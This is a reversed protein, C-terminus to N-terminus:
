ADKKVLKQMGYYEIAKQKLPNTSWEEWKNTYPSYGCKLPKSYMDEPKELYARCDTCVYRFECDKCVDIQDKTVNWYKKFDIHNLAKELTTDNINGFSQPMSPCNKINGNIDISIKRNLCSNHKLSETYNKINIAFMSSSIQGCHTHASIKDKLLIIFNQKDNLEIFSNELSNYNIISNIRKYDQLLLKYEDIINNENIFPFIFDVSTIFMENIDIFEIINRIVEIEIKHYFRIQINKCNLSEIQKLVDEIKYRSNASVDIIVNNIISPEFWDDSLNPFLDPTDTLFALENEILFDFYEDIIEDFENNFKEKIAKIKLKSNMLVNYLDNPILKIGGRQLDCIASRNVGKVIKCNAYLKIYMDDSM